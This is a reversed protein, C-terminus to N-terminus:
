VKRSMRLWDVYRALGDALPVEARWGLDRAAASADAGARPVDGPRPDTFV